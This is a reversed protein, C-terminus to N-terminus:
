KFGLEKLKDWFTIPIIPKNLEIVLADESEKICRMAAENNGTTKIYACSGNDTTATIRYRTNFDKGDEIVSVTGYRANSKVVKEM